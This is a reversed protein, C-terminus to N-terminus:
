PFAEPNCLPALSGLGIGAWSPPAGPPLPPNGSGDGLDDQAISAVCVAGREALILASRCGPRAFCVGEQGAASRVGRLARGRGPDSVAAEPPVGKVPRTILDHCLKSFCVVQERGRALSSSSSSITMKAEYVLLSGNDLHMALVLRRLEPPGDVSGVPHVIVDTVEPCVVGDGDEEEVAAATAEGAVMEAKSGGGSERAGSDDGNEAAPNSSGVSAGGGGGAEPPAADVEMPDVPSHSSPRLPPPAKVVPPVLLENWLTAPAM